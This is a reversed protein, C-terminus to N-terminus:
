VSPLKAAASGDALEGDEAADETLEQALEDHDGAQPRLRAPHTATHVQKLM